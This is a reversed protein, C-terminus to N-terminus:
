EYLPHTSGLHNKKKPFRKNVQVTDQPEIMSSLINFDVGPIREHTTVLQHNVLCVNQSYCTDLCRFLGHPCESITESDDDDDDDDDNNDSLLSLHLQSLVGAGSQPWISLATMESNSVLWRFCNSM